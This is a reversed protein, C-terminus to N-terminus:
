MQHSPFEKRVLYCPPFTDQPSSGARVLESQLWTFISCDPLAKPYASQLGCFSPYSLMRSAPITNDSIEMLSSTKGLAVQVGQGTATKAPVLCAHTM